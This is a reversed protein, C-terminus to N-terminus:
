QGRKYTNKYKNSAPVNTYITNIKQISDKRVYTLITKGQIHVDDYRGWIQPILANCNIRYGQITNAIVYWTYFSLSIYSNTTKQLLTFIAGTGGASSFYWAHAGEFLNRSFHLSSNLNSVYFQNYGFQMAFRSPM